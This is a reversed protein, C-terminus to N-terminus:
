EGPIVMAELDALPVFIGRLNNTNINTVGYKQVAQDRDICYTNPYLLNGSKDKVTVVFKNLGPTLKHLAIGIKKDGWMIGSIELM